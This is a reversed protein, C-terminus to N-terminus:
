ARIPQQGRSVLAGNVAGLARREISGNLQMILGELRALGTQDAGRADIIYTDGGGGGGQAQVGLKGNIRTLPLIAEPGAEGMLGVGRAFPFVTPQSVVSGSYASIGAGSYVGGNANKFLGGFDIGDLIATGAKVIPDTIRKQVQIRVLDNIISDALSGFDAKGTRIMRTMEDTFANGWGRVANELSKFSDDGAKSIDDFTKAYAQGIQEDTLLGAEKLTLLKEWEAQLKLMPDLDYLIRNAEEQAKARDRISQETQKAIGKELEAASQNMDVQQALLEMEALKDASFGKYKGAAIDYRLQEVESLQAYGAAQRRLADLTSQEQERIRDAETKGKSGGTGFKKLLDSGATSSSPKGATPAAQSNLNAAAAIRESEALDSLAQLKQDYQARLKPVFWAAPDAAFEFALGIKAAVEAATIGMNKLMFIAPKIGNEVIGIFAPIMATGIGEGQTKLEALKDNFEAARAANEATIPNYEKGQAINNRMAETGQNLFLIMEQGLKDGFLKAALASKEMGDPMAAFMDSLQVMAETSDSASIGLKKFLEPKDNMVGALKQGARAVTELSTGNQEAAYQLGALSEVSTGTIQSLEDLRDAADISSKVFAALAGISLAGTLAGAAGGLSFFNRAAGGVTNSLSRIANEAQATAATIIIKTEAM